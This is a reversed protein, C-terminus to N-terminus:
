SGGKREYEEVDTRKIRILKAGLKIHPIDGRDVM